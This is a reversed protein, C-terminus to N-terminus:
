GRKFKNKIIGKMYEFFNIKIISPDDVFNSTSKFYIVEKNKGIIKFFKM